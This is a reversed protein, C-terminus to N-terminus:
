RGTENEIYDLLNVAMDNDQMSTGAAMRHTELARKVLDVEDSRLQITHM